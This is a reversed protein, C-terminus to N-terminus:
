EWAYVKDRHEEMALFVRDATAAVCAATYM